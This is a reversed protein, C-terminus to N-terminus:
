MDWLGAMVWVFLFLIHHWQAVLHVYNLTVMLPLNLVLTLLVM